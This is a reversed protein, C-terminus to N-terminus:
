DLAAIIMADGDLYAQVAQRRLAPDIEDATRYLGDIALLEAELRRCFIRAGPHGSLGAIARGRLTGYVHISGGAIVEAGSAVSGVVIVDGEPYAVSRGSRVPETVMLSPVPRPPEPLPAPTAEAAESDEPSRAQAPEMAMDGAARGGSILPPWGWGEVDCWSSDAGEIGVVRIGRAQLAPVLLPLNPEEPPMAAMDVVVPRGEFFSPSRKIQEDLQALWETLPSEPVLSVAM